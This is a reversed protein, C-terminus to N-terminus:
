LKIIKFLNKDFKYQALIRKDLLKLIKYREAYSDTHRLFGLYSNIVSRFHNHFEPTDQYTNNFELIKQKFKYITNNGLYVRDFKVVSGIFKVGKSYHQFYIKYPHLNIGLQSKLYSKIKNLKPLVSDKIFVLLFFDDVYRGYYKFIKLMVIDFPSLYFNAFVQSTLNGIPLGHYDDQFFLSKEKDLKYKLKPDGKYICNKQPCHFVILKTLYLVLNQDKEKYYQLIFKELNKWLIRKDISVFFNKFDGKFVYADKQYLNTIQKIQKRLDTVGYLTGKNVRCSYTTPIFVKSEFLPMLKNILLHHVIRDRFDAAFVERIKPRTIIFVISRGIKYNGNKLDLYLQYCNEEFNVEFKVQNITRRKHLRCQYYAELVEKYTINYNM